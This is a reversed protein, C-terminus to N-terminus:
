IVHFIHFGEKSVLNEVLTLIDNGSIIIVKDVTSINIAILVVDVSGRGGGGVVITSSTTITYTIIVVPHHLHHHEEGVNDEQCRHTNAIIIVIVVVCAFIKVHRSFRRSLRFRVSSYITKYLESVTRNRETKINWTKYPKLKWNRNKWM